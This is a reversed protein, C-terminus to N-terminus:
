SQDCLVFRFHVRLQNMSELARPTEYVTLNSFTAPDVILYPLTGTESDQIAGNPIMTLPSERDHDHVARKQREVHEQHYQKQLDLTPYGPNPRSTTLQDSNSSITHPTNVTSTSPKLQRHGHPTENPPKLPFAPTKHTTRTTITSSQPTTTTIATTAGADHSAVNTPTSVQDKVTQFTPCSLLDGLIRVRTTYIFQNRTIEICSSCLAPWNQSLNIGFSEPNMFGFYEDGFHEIDCKKDFCSSLVSGSWIPIKATLRVKTKNVPSGIINESYEDLHKINPRLTKGFDKIVMIQAEMIIGLSEPINDSVKHRDRFKESATMGIAVIIVVGLLVTAIRKLLWILGPRTWFLYRYRAKSFCGQPIDDDDGDLWKDNESSSISRAQYGGFRLGMIGYEPVFIDKLQEDTLRDTTRNMGRVQGDLDQSDISSHETSETDNDGSGGPSTTEKSKSQPPSAHNRLFPLRSQSRLREMAQILSSSWMSSPSSATWPEQRPTTPPTSLNISTGDPIIIKPLNPKRQRPVQSADASGPNSTDETPKLNWGNDCNPNMEILPNTPPLGSNRKSGSATSSRHQTHPRTIALSVLTTTSRETESSEAPFPASELPLSTHRNSSRIPLTATIDEETTAGIKKQADQLSSCSTSFVSSFSSDFPSSDEQLTESVVPVNCSRNSWTGPSELPLLRRGIASAHDESYNAPKPSHRWYVSIKYGTDNPTEQNQHHASIPSLDM